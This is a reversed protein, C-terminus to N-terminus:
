LPSIDPKEARTRGTCHHWVGITTITLSLTVVAYIWIYPSLMDGDKLKWDFFSMSFLTAVFTGPLFIMTLLAMSRMQNGDRQTAKSIEMTSGSIALNTKTDARAIQNWETQTAFTMGDIVTSCERNKEDYENIIQTLREKIRVGQSRMSQSIDDAETEAIGENQASELEALHRVLVQLQVKWNNLGNRIHSMELWDFISALDGTPTFEGTESKETDVNSCQSTYKSVKISNGVDVVRQTLKGVYDQVMDVQRNREVDALLIPLTLPHFTNLECKSLRSMVMSAIHNPCGYMVAYTFRRNPFYSVSLAVDNAWSAATRCNYVIAGPASSGWADLQRSCHATTNRNIVRAISSHVFLEKTIKDFTGQSFPLRAALMPDHRKGEAREILILRIGDTQSHFDANSRSDLWSTWESDSSLKTDQVYWSSKNNGRGIEFATGTGSQFNFVNTDMTIMRPEERLWDM